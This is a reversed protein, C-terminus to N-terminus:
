CPSPTIPPEFESIWDEVRSVCTDMSDQFDGSGIFADDHRYPDALAVVDASGANIDIAKGDLVNFVHDYNGGIDAGFVVSGFLATFKCANSLDQPGEDPSGKNEVHREQWKQLCFARVTAINQESAEIPYGDFYDGFFDEESLHM